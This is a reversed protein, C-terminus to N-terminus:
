FVVRHTRMWVEVNILTWVLDANGHSPDRRFREISERVAGPRYLGASVANPATLEPLYRGLDREDGLWRVFPTAFGIKKRYINARPMLNEAYKKLLWKGERRRTKLGRPLRAAFIALRHDLFPVRTEVSAAMSMRDQRALISTLRAKIDLCQMGEFPSLGPEAAIERRRRVDGRDTLGDRLLNRIKAPKHCAISHVVMKEVSPSLLRKWKMAKALPGIRPTWRPLCRLPKDIFPNLRHLLIHYRDYGGFIEDSGEGSLLVTIYPKAHKCMAYVAISSPHGIPGDRLRIMEPLLRACDEGRLIIQHHELGYREALAKSFPIENCPDDDRFGISFARVQSGVEQAMLATTLSSDVGGSLQCGVPVDSRLQLSVSERLLSDIGELATLADVRTDPDGLYQAVDWYRVIRVGQEDVVASHGPLLQRIGKLLTRESALSRYAFWEGLAPADLERPVGPVALLAKIESAFLFGASTERYYFPKIGFRDIACFLRNRASDYIAFAFMGNMKDLCAPGYEEYAHLVAETDTQSRFVHGKAELDARLDRYNYTEGNYVIWLTRDENPMPQHGAASLDIISLRRFALGVHGFAEVGADDPGRHVMTEAMAALVEADVCEARDRLFQGCIGCM